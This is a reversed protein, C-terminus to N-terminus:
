IKMQNTDANWAIIRITDTNAMTYTAGDAITIINGSFTIDADATVINDGSDLIQVVADTVKSLGPIAVAVSSTGPSTVRVVVVPVLSGIVMIPNPIAPVLTAM